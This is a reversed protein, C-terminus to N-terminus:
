RRTLAGVVTAVVEDLPTAVDVTVADAPPELTALQSELLEPGAPGRRAELRSRLLEPDGTLHVLHADDVGDLLRARHREGLASCAVVAGDPRARLEANLRDLWPWRDDDTMAEGRQTKARAESSHFDDAEIFPLDLQQALAEAVTSKGAGAVGMVVVIVVVLSASREIHRRTPRGVAAM